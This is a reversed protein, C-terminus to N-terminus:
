CGAVLSLRRVAFVVCRVVFLLGGWFVLSFYVDLLLRCDVCSWYCFLGGGGSFVCRDVVLLLCGLFAFACLLYSVAFWKCCVVCLSCDAAFLLCCVVFVLCRAVFLVVLLRCCAVPLSGRGVFLVCRAVVLLLGCVVSLRCAVVFLAVFLLCCVVFLM